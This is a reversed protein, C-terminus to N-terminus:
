SVLMADGYSYFRYKEQIAESYAAQIREEGAFASVLLLLSTGPLHFNTIMADTVNFKFGSRIFLETTGELCGHTRGGVSGVQVAPREDGWRPSESKDERARGESDSPVGQGSPRVVGAQGPRSAADGMATELARVVTTGVAVVRGNKQKTETITQVTEKPIVYREPHLKGEAMEKEGVPKFTGWGVHLTLPAIRVGKGRIQELMEPTFHLGATPAAVAGAEKAYVTQYWGADEPRVPRDIYPPLPMEGLRRITVEAGRGEFRVLREGNEWSLVEAHLRGEDFQLRTGPKLNKAPQGLCRYIRAKEGEPQGESLLLLEVKGGTMAKRGYIRAPLVKTDNLVLCDGARLLEPLDSFIRHSIKGSKRDLVLLRSSDRPEAPSQAILEKPLEYTLM